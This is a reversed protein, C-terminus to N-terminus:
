LQEEPFDNEDRKNRHQAASVIALVAQAVALLIFWLTWVDMLVMPNRMDQTLLFLVLSAFAILACLLKLVTGPLPRRRPENQDEVVQTDPTEWARLEERRTKRGVAARVLLVIGVVLCLVTLVLNLLSWM